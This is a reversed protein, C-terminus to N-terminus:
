SELLNVRRLFMPLGVMMAGIGLLGAGWRLATEVQSPGTVPLRDLTTAPPTPVPDPAVGCDGDTPDNYSYGYGDSDVCEYTTTTTPEEDEECNVFGEFTGIHVKDGEGRLWDVYVVWGTDEEPLDFSHTVTEGAPVLVEIGNVLATEDLEGINTLEVDLGGDCSHGADATLGREPCPVQVTRTSERTEGTAVWPEGPDTESWMFEEHSVEPTIVTVETVGSKVYRYDRQFGPLRLHPGEELVDVDETSWKVSRPVWETWDSWPGWQFDPPWGPVLVKERESTQKVYEWSTETVEEQDIVTRKYESETFTEEAECLDGGQDTAGAAGVFSAMTVLFAALGAAIYRNVRM